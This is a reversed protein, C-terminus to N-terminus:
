WKAVPCHTERKPLIRMKKGFPLTEIERYLCTRSSENNAHKVSLIPLLQKELIEKNRGTFIREYWLRDGERLAIFQRVILRKMTRGLSSRPLHDEALAGVWADINEVNGYANRLKNQTETDETIDSFDDITPLDLFDRIQTYSPIGHDRGRQINLSPLDM